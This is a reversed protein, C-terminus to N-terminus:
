GHVLSAAQRRTKAGIRRLSTAIHSDVTAVGIDLRDAIQRSTLGDAVLRLVEVERPTLRTVTRRRNIDHELAARRRESVDQTTTAGPLLAAARDLQGCATAIEAPALEARRAFRRMGQRHWHDAARACADIAAELEGDRQHELAAREHTVAGLVPTLVTSAVPPEVARPDSYALHIAASEALANLGFFGAGCDALEDIARRMMAVDRTALAVECRACALLARSEATHAWGTGADLVALADATDGRDLLVAVLALDVQARNRFTPSERLIRRCEDILSDPVGGVGTHHIIHAGLFHHYWRRPGRERTEAVMAAGLENARTMPGYFGVASLRWYCAALREEDDGATLAAREADDFYTDWGGAGTHSRALGATNLARAVAVGGTHAAAAAADALPVIAPDGVRLRVAVFAREVILQIEEDSGTGSVKGLSREIIDLAGPPDGDLWAARALRLGAAAIAGADDSRVRDAVARAVGPRHADLAADAADLLLDDTADQGLADAALVLLDARMAPDAGDAARRAARAAESRQGLALHLHAAEAPVVEQTLERRLEDLRHEGLLELVTSAFLDHVFWLAGGSTRTTLELDGATLLPLSPADVPAGRLALKGLETLTGPPCALLRDTVAARLTPSISGGRALHALLLPNGHAAEVLRDRQAGALEPHLRRVLRLAQRRDLPPLVVHDVLPHSGLPQVDRSSVIMGVRGILSRLVALTDADCWHLDEVVLIREDVAAIVETAVDETSGSLPADIAHALARYSMAAFPQLCQAVVDGTRSALRVTRSKGIGAPGVVAVTRRAVAARRIEIPSRPPTGDTESAGHGRM